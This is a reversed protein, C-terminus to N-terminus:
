HHFLKILQSFDNRLFATTKPTSTSSAERGTRTVLLTNRCGQQRCCQCFTLLLLHVSHDRPVLTETHKMTRRVVKNMKQSPDCIGGWLPERETRDDQQQICVNYSRAFLCPCAHLYIYSLTLPTTNMTPRSSFQFLGSDRLSHKGLIAHQSSYSSICPTKSVALDKYHRLWLSSVTDDSVGVQWQLCFGPATNLTCYVHSSEWAPIAKM